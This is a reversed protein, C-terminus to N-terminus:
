RSIFISEMVADLLELGPRFSADPLVNLQQKMETIYTPFADSFAMTDGGPVDMGDAPLIPHSIPLVGSILFRGDATLGQFAYFLNHNNIASADQGYQTLFRVGSGNQFDLYHVKAAM